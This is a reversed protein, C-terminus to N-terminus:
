LYGKKKVQRLTAYVAQVTKRTKKAIEEPKFDKYLTFIEEQKKTLPKRDDKVGLKEKQQKHYYNIRQEIERNLNSTFMVKQKEYYEILKKSPKTVNWFKLAKLIYNSMGKPKYSIRLFKEYFKGKQSNYELIKPKLKCTKKKRNITITEIKFHFMKRTAKDLLDEFPTPLILTLNKHRFTSILYNVMKNAITQFDRSSIDTQAEEWIIVDGKKLKGSNIVSILDKLTFVIHIKNKNDIEKVLSESISLASWSKGSGTKGVILVLNNQNTRTIRRALFKIWSDKRPIDQNRYTIIYTRM